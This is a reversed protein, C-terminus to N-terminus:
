KETVEGALSKPMLEKIKGMNDSYCGLLNMLKVITAENTMDGAGIAGAKKILFGNEYQDLDVVSQTSQSTVLVLKGKDSIKSILDVLSKEQIAVNGYGLAELVVAQAPTKIIWNLYDPNLGPFFRVVLVQDSFCKEIQFGERSQFHYDHLRVESGVEALSPFNPSDFAYYKTNSIKVTRNGRFLKSGFFICVEPIPKTAFDIANLLNNRADTRIEALPRVAGTLIVPKPLNKLMFSLASATYVMSDTGHVVVFGDYEDIKDFIEQAIQQWHEIQINSSDMNFLMEFKVEALEKIEPIYHLVQKELEDKNLTRKPKEPLMGFTGGTHILLVQKM